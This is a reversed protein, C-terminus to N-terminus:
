RHQKGLISLAETIIVEELSDGKGIGYYDGGTIRPIEM